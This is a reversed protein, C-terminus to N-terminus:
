NLITKEILGEKLLLNLLSEKIEKFSKNKIEPRVIFVFDFGKKIQDLNNRIIEHLQRRIRNRETAKKSIKLTVIFGFRSIRLENKIVKAFIFKESFFKKSKLVKEFDKKKTLRFRKPLM